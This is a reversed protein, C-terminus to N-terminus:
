SLLGPIDVGWLLSLGLFTLAQGLERSPAETGLPRGAQYLTQWRPGQALGPPDRSTFCKPPRPWMPCGERQLGLDVTLPTWRHRQSLSGMLIPCWLKPASTGQNDCM